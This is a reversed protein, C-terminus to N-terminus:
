TTQIRNIAPEVRLLHKQIKGSANRPIPHILIHHPVKYDSILSRSWERVEALTPTSGDRPVIVALISEGFEAHPIGLVAVDVIDPHGMLANEVEISYVNHGGSIIMDKMRDVLTIYGDADHIAVDGTHLWGNRLTAMTEDDNKWYRKMVTEGRLLLEGVEGAQVDNGELDVVRCETNPFAFRGSADPRARVDAAGSYIGGPGAETQGCLQILEVTPLRRILREVVSAPMPAAGFMGVRWSSLDLEDLDPVELMRQYMTPVGFFVNIKQQAITHVVVAPDFSPLITHTAATMTGPFFMLCLEAAHYLPAVHLIKEEEKLGYIGAM